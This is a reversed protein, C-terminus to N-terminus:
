SDLKEQFDKNKRLGLGTSALTAEKQRSSASLWRKHEAMRGARLQVNAETSSGSRDDTLETPKVDHPM